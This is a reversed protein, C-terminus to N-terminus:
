RRSRGEGTEAISYIDPVTAGSQGGISSAVLPWLYAGRTAAPRHVASGVLLGIVVGTAAMAAATATSAARFVPLRAKERRERVAPWIPRVPEGREHSGLTERVRSFEELIKACSSCSSCHDRVEGAESPALEGDILAMIRPEGPHPGHANM